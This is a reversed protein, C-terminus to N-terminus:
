DNPLSKYAARLVRLWPLKHGHALAILSKMRINKGHGNEFEYLQTTGLECAAAIEHLRMGSNARRTKLLQALSESPYPRRADQLLVEVEARVGYLEALDLLWVTEPNQTM